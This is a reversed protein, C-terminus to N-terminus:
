DHREGPVGPGLEVYSEGSRLKASGSLHSLVDMAVSLLELENNSDM